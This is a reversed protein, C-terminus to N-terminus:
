VMGVDVENQVRITDSALSSEGSEKRGTARIDTTYENHEPNLTGASQGLVTRNQETACVAGTSQM